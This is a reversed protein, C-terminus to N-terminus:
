RSQEGTLMGEVRAATIIIGRRLLGLRLTHIFLDRLPKLGSLLKKEPENLDHILAYYEAAQRFATDYGLRNIPFDKQGRGYGPMQVVFVPSVSTEGGTRRSQKVRFTAVLGTALAGPGANTHTSTLRNDRRAQMASARWIADLEHAMRSGTAMGYQDLPFYKERFELASGLKTAVRFGIFGAPHEGEGYFFVAM